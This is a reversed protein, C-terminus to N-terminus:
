PHIKGFFKFVVHYMQEPRGAERFPAFGADMNDAEVMAVFHYKDGSPGWIGMYKAGTKKCAKELSEGYKNVTDRPGTWDFYYHALM